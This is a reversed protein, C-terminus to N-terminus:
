LALRKIEKAMNLDSVGVCAVEGKNFLAGMEQKTLYRVVQVQYYNAKSLYKKEQSPSIDTTLILVRVQNNMMKILNNEGFYLKKACYAFQLLTNIRNEQSSNM